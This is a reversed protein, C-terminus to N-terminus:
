TFMDFLCSYMVCKMRLSFLQWCFVVLIRFCSILVFIDIIIKICTWNIHTSWNIFNFPKWGMGHAVRGCDVFIEIYKNFSRSIYENMPREWKNHFCSCQANAPAPAISWALSVSERVNTYVPKKEIEDLEGIVNNLQHWYLITDKKLLEIIWSGHREYRALRAALISQIWGHWNPRMWTWFRPANMLYTDPTWGFIRKQRLIIVTQFTLVPISTAWMGVCLNARIESLTGNSFTASSEDFAKNWVFNGSWDIRFTHAFHIMENAAGWCSLVWKNNEVSHISLFLLKSSFISSLYLFIM